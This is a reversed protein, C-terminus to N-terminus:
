GSRARGEGQDGEYDPEGTVSGESSRVAGRVRQAVRAMVAHELAGFPIIKCADVAVGVAEADEVIAGAALAVPGDTRAHM